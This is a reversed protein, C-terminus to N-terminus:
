KSWEGVGLAWDMASKSGYTKVGDVIARTPSLRIVSKQQPIVDFDDDFSSVECVNIELTEPDCKTMDFFEDIKSKFSNFIRM